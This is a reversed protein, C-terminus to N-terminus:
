WRPPRPTHCLRIEIPRVAGRRRVGGTRLICRPSCALLSSQTCWAPDRNRTVRIFHCSIVIQDRRTPTSLTM